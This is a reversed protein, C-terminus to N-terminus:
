GVLREALAVDSEFYGVDSRGFVLSTVLRYIVARVFLQPFGPNQSVAALLPEPDADRWRVADGIVVATAFGCPRFYPTVDIIAPALGDAFLLNETLDGHIVQSPATTPRRMGLLRELIPHAVPPSLEEWAVRDGISWPNTRADLFPPRELTAIAAHFREGVEIVEVWREAHAGAVLPQACWGEVVWRGDGSRMPLALRFGDQAVHPLVEGLWRWEVEDDCPKLVVEDACWSRGEGGGLAVPDGTAGFAELVASPPPRM